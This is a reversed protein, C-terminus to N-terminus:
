QDSALKRHETVFEPLAGIGRLVGPYAVPTLTIEAFSRISPKRLPDGARPCYSRFAAFRDFKAEESATMAASGSENVRITAVALLKKGNTESAGSITSRSAGLPFKIRTQRALVTLDAEGQNLRRLVYEKVTM